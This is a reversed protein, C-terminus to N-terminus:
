VESAEGDRRLPGQKRAFELAGRLRRRLPGALAESVTGGDPLLKSREVWAWLFRNGFGNAQETATLYRLAENKTIHGVISVHAGTARAPSNKTLAALHGCDWSQRLLASLTNGQRETQKLVNAFEPECVLLRKDAVGPDAPVEDYRVSGGRGKVRERKMIEDRVAWILGEGSSLGTQVRRGAWEEDAHRLFGLVRGWSTGKRAKSSKGVLVAFENGSHRDGEVECYAARGAQNGFGVLVQLLLAAPDAESAPEIARVIEGALGHFAERALPEPRPPEAPLPPAAPEAPVAQPRALLERLADPPNANRFDDLGVKGGDPAAPLRVVSVVAGREGLAAALAQEARRVNENEAADSDFVVYVTRGEWALAALDDLLERPGTGQRKKCWSWVGSLGLCPIGEDDARAAKKEGETLVLAEGPDALAQATVGCPPFYVRPCEGVPAEYKVTKRDASGARPSDPKLRAYGTSTGDPGHYPIVLCAGLHGRYGPAWNLLSRVQEADAESYFGCRAITGDKLGSKHLDALHQPLLV